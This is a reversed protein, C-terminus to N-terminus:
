FEQTEGDEIPSGTSELKRGVDLDVSAVQAQRVKDEKRAPGPKRPWGSAWSSGLGQHGQKLLGHVRGRTASTNFPKKGREGTRHAAKAGQAM